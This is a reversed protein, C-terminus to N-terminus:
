RRIYRCYTGMGDYDTPTEVLEKRNVRYDRIWGLPLIILLILLGLLTATLPTM